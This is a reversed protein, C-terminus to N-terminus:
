IAGLTLVAIASFVILALGAEGIGGSVVSLYVFILIIAFGALAGVGLSGAWSLPALLLQGPAFILSAGAAPNGFPMTMLLLGFIFALIVASPGDIESILPM